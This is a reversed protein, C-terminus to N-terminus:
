FFGIISRPQIDIQTQTMNHLIIQQFSYAPPNQLNIDASLGEFSSSVLFIVIQEVILKWELEFRISSFSSIEIPFKNILQFSQEISDYNLDFTQNSNFVYPM